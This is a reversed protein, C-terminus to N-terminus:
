RMAKGVEQIIKLFAPLWQAALYGVISWKALEFAKKRQGIIIFLVAVACTLYCLPYALGQMLDILPDFAKIIKSAIEM